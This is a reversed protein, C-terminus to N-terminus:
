FSEQSQFAANDRGRYSNGDGASMSRQSLSMGISATEFGGQDTRPVVSVPFRYSLFALGSVIVLIAGAIGVGIGAGAHQRFPAPPVNFRPPFSITNNAAVSHLNWSLPVLSCTGALLQIAGALAFATWVPRKPRGFYVCRLAYVGGANGALGLVLAAVMLAQAVPIEPPAFSDLFGIAQCFMGELEGTPLVSSLFCARWIGVWVVGSTVFSVDAVSWVRWQILGMAVGTLIWGVCGVWLSYFQLYASHVLYAMAGLGREKFRRTVRGARHTPWREPSPPVPFRAFLAGSDESCYSLLPAFCSFKSLFPQPELHEPSECAVRPSEM